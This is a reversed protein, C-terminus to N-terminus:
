IGRVSIQMNVDTLASVSVRFYRASIDIEKYAYFGNAAVQVVVERVKVPGGGSADPSYIGEQISLYPTGGTNIGLSVRIKNVEATELWESTYGSSLDGYHEVLIDVRRTPNVM